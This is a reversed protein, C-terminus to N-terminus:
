SITVSPHLNRVPSLEGRVPHDLRLMIDSEENFQRMSHAAATSVSFAKVAVEGDHGGLVGRYVTSFGGRGIVDGQDIIRKLRGWERELYRDLLALDSVVQRKRATLSRLMDAVAAGVRDLDEPSPLGNTGVGVEVVPLSLIPVVTDRIAIGSTFHSTSPLDGASIDACGAMVPLCLCEGARVRELTVEWQHLTSDRRKHAMKFGEIVDPCVLLVILDAGVLGHLVAALGHWEEGDDMCTRDYFCALPPGGPSLAHSPSEIARM